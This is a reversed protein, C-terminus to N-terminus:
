LHKWNNPDVDLYGIIILIWYNINLLQSLQNIHRLYVKIQLNEEMGYKERERGEGRGEGEGERLKKSINKNNNFFAPKPGISSRLKSNQQKFRHPISYRTGRDRINEIFQYNYQSVQTSEGTKHFSSKM